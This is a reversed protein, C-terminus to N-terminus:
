NDYKNEFIKLFMTCSWIVLSVVSKFIRHGIAMGNAEAVAETFNLHATFHFLEYYAAVTSWRLHFTLTENVESELILEIRITWSSTWTEIDSKKKWDWSTGGALDTPWIQEICTFHRMPGLPLKGRLLGRDEDRFRYHHRWIHVVVDKQLWMVFLRSGTCWLFFPCQSM